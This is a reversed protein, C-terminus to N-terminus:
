YYDDTNDTEERRDDRDRDRVKDDSEDGDVLVAQAPPATNPPTM